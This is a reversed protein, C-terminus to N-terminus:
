NFFQNFDESLIKTADKTKLLKIKADDQIFESIKSLVDIHNTSNKMLLMFVIEVKISGESAGMPKFEVANKLNAVIMCEKKTYIQDTHPIAVGTISELGTPYNKEREIIAEIFGDNALNKGLAFSGMKTLLDEVNTGGDLELIHINEPEHLKM